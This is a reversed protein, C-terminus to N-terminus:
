PLDHTRANYKHVRRLTHSLEHATVSFFVPARIHTHSHTEEREIRHRHSINKDFFHWTDRCRRVVGDCVGCVTVLYRKNFKRGPFRASAHRVYGMRRADPHKRISRISIRLDCIGRSHLNQIILSIQSINSSLFNM